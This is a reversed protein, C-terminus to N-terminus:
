SCVRRVSLHRPKCQYESNKEKWQVNKNREFAATVVNWNKTHLEDDSMNGVPINGWEIDNQLNSNDFMKKKMQNKWSGEM